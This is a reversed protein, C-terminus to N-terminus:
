LTFRSDLPFRKNHHAHRARYSRAKAVNGCDSIDCWTGSHNKSRDYFAWACDHGRCVKLNEWTGDGMSDVVIAILKGLAGDVAPALPELQVRGASGFSICMQASRTSRNLIEVADADINDENRTEILRIIADRVATAQRVDSEAVSAKAPILQEEVLWEKLAAPSSFDERGVKKNTSNLFAQILRLRGPAPKDGIRDTM